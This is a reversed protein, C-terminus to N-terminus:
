GIAWRKYFYPKNCIHILSLDVGPIEPQKPAVGPSAEQYGGYKTSDWTAWKESAREKYVVHMDWGQRKYVDLHTYSVAKRGKRSKNNVIYYKDHEM